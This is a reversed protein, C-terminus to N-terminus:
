KGGWSEPAQLTQGIEGGTQQPQQPQQQQARFIVELNNMKKTPVTKTPIVRKKTEPYITGMMKDLESKFNM